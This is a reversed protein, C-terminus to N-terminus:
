KVPIFIDTYEWKLSIGNNMVTYELKENLAPLKKPEVAFSFVTKAPDMNTKGDKEGPQGTESNFFITWEKEGPTAFFSYKGAALKKGDITIDKDTQFITAANAGARWLKGYPLLGGFIKRGKVSPSSYDISIAADGIKGTATAPPSPRKSQDNQAKLLNPLVLGILIFALLRIPYHKKM